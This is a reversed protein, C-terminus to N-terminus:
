KEKLLWNNSIVKIFTDGNKLVIGERPSGNIASNGDALDLMQQVSMGQVDLDNLLPAHLLGLQNVLTLREMPPLYSRTATNYINFVRWELRVKYQNGNIGEGILEGQLAYGLLGLERMRAEVGYKRAAIWFSNTESERLDLNRSCVHFQGDADLYMTCSSGHLKETIEFSLGSLRPWDAALNQIREAETKPVAVPFLSMADGALCAPVAPEWLRIGLVESVDDGLNVPTGTLTGLPLILGQSLQGRLRVTRLREGPIGEWVRPERGKSLFPALEHPVWADPEVYIIWDGSAYKGVTDVVWWGDIAYAVIRDAGEIPRVEGVSRISALKRTM